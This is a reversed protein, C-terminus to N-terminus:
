LASLHVQVKLSWCHKPPRQDKREKITAAAAATNKNYSAKFMFLTSLEDLSIRAFNLAVYARQIVDPKLATRGPLTCISGKSM